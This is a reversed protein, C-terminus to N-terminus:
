GGAFRFAPLLKAKCAKSRQMGKSHVSVACKESFPRRNSLVTRDRAKAWPEAGSKQFTTLLEASDDKLRKKSGDLSEVHFTRVQNLCSLLLALVRSDPYPKCLIHQVVQGSVQLCLDGSMDNVALDLLLHPLLLEAVPPRLRVQM